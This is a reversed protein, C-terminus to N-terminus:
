NQFVITNFSKPKLKFTQKNGAKVIEINKVGAENNAVVVVTQNENSFALIDEFEGKTKLKFSGPAVFHTFHKFLHYEPNYTVKKTESHISVLSNQKWGWHSKGTEDLVMNWYMYSNAGNNLYHKLLDWTHEAAAWDNTGNGCESETQMLKMDPYKQNVRSIAGKGAWQFGVGAIFKGAEPDNLITDVKEVYPREVTGYWIDAEISEKEFAPGLYDGIFIALDKSTWICSPFNQCSNMENQVHVAYVNIGENLYGRVYKTFYDAYAYLYKDEMIFQTVNEQGRGEETLDNVGEDPKCAYHNNTKMWAPPCWPSGWVQLDPNYHMAMKIYPVFYNQDRELSFNEMNFDGASDNLSYWSKAYDNAGIPMRCINFKCGHAMDFFHKIVTDREELPLLKLAEWGLENFCAGWGDIKQEKEALVEVTIDTQNDTSNGVNEKVWRADNTSSVWAIDNDSQSCSFLFALFPLVFFKKM